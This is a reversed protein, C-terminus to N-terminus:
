RRTPRYRGLCLWLVITSIVLISSAAIARPVFGSSIWDILKFGTLAYLVSLANGILFNQYISRGQPANEGPEAERSWRSWQGAVKLALWFGIFEGRGVQLTAIYLTREVIGTVRPQWVDPRFHDPRVTKRWGICQWMRDSVLKTAVSGILIAFGYGIAYAYWM